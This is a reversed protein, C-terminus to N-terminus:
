SKIIIIKKKEFYLFFELFFIFIMEHCRPSQCPEDIIVDFYFKNNNNTNRQKNVFVIWLKYSSDQVLTFSIMIHFEYNCEIDAIPTAPPHPSFSSTHTKMFVWRLSNMDYKVKFKGDSFQVAILNHPPSSRGFLVTSHHHHHHYYITYM